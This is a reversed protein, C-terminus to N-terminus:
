FKDIKNSTEKDNRFLSLFRYCLINILNLKENECYIVDGIKNSITKLWIYKGSKSRFRYVVCATMGEIVYIHSKSVNRISAVHIYDYVQKDVLENTKYGTIEEVGESIYTYEGTLQHLSIFNNKLNLSRIQQQEQIDLCKLHMVKVM